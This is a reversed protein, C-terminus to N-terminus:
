NCVFSSSTQTINPPTVNVSAFGIGSGARITGATWPTACVTRTAAPASSCGSSCCAQSTVTFTACGGSCVIQALAAAGFIPPSTVLSSAGTYRAINCSVAAAASMTASAHISREIAARQEEAAAIRQLLDDRAEGLEREAYLEDLEADARELLWRHGEEGVVIREANGDESPLEWVGQAVSKWGAGKVLSFGSEGAGREITLEAGPLASQSEEDVVLTEGSADSDTDSEPVSPSLACGTSAGLIALAASLVSVMGHNKM